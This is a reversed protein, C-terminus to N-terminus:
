GLYSVLGFLLTVLAIDGLFIGLMEWYSLLTVLLPRYQNLQPLVMSGMSVVKLIINNENVIFKKKSMVVFYTALIAVECTIFWSFFSSRQLTVSNRIYEYSSSQLIDKDHTYHYIFNFVTTIYRVVLFVNKTKQQQYANYDQLKAQYTSAPAQQTPGASGASGTASPMGPFGDGGEGGFMKMMAAFPDQGDLGPLGASGAGGTGAAGGFLKNLMDDLDEPQPTATGSIDVDEPDDDEGRLLVAPVAVTKVSPSTAVQPASTQATKKELPSVTEKVSSGSQLITNLRDTAKNNMKAQRRERLLRRKEDASLSDAM